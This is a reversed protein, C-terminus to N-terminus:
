YTSGGVDEGLGNCTYCWVISEGGKLKYGSCGYNPFWENVKYMWGSQFGCDFEYLHNIGEVYYSDYMPTWSFELPIEYVECVRSLVDFVTDGDTFEVATPELIVGDEPVYSAKATDLNEWNNLITDCYIAITCSLGDTNGSVLQASIAANREEEMQDLEENTVCLTRSENAARIQSLAFDNLANLEIEGNYHERGVWELTQGASASSVEGDFVSITQAGARVSLMAATNEFAMERDEFSLTIKDSVNAFAEGSVLEASFAKGSAENIIIEASSGLALTGNEVSIVASAGADCTLRDGSRLATDAEVPYVVGDREMNMIGRVNGVVAADKDGGFWGMISGVAFLGAAAIALIVLVMILNAIHKKKTKM